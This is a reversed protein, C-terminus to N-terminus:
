PWGTSRAWRTGAPSTPSISSGRREKGPAGLVLRAGRARFATGTRYVADLRDLVGQPGLEPILEGIPSGTQTRGGGFVEFFSPNAAELLHSPGSLAVFIVPAQDFLDEYEETRRLPSRPHTTVAGLRDPQLSM